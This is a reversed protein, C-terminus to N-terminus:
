KLPCTCELSRRPSKLKLCFGVCNSVLTINLYIRGPSCYPLFESCVRLNVNLYAAARATNDNSTFEKPWCQTRQLFHKHTSAELCKLSVKLVTKFVIIPIITDFIFLRNDTAWGSTTTFTFSHSEKTSWLLLNYIWYHNKSYPSRSHYGPDRFREYVNKHLKLIHM